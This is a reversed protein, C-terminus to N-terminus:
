KSPPPPGMIQSPTGMVLSACTLQPPPLLKQCPKRQTLPTGMIKQPPLPGWEGPPLVVSSLDFDVGGPPPGGSGKKGGGEEEEEEEPPRLLSLEEPYRIGAGWLWPDAGWLGGDGGGSQEEIAGPRLITGKCRGAGEFWGRLM